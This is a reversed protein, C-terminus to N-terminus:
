PHTSKAVCFPVIPKLRDGRETYTYDFRFWQSPETVNGKLDISTAIM